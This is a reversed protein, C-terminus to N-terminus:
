QINLVMTKMRSRIDPDTQIWYGYNWPAYDRDRTHQSMYDGSGNTFDRYNHGNASDYYNAFTGFGSSVSVHDWVGDGDGWEYVYVDGPTAPSYKDRMSGPLLAAARNSGDLYMRLENAITWSRTHDYSYPNFWWVYTGTEDFPMGGARLVQSAFNTCDNSYRDYYINRLIDTNSAWRHAYGQADARSYAWAYANGSVLMGVIFWAVFITAARLRRAM